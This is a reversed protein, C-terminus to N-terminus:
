NEQQVDPEITSVQADDWTFNTFTLQRSVNYYRWTEQSLITTKDLKAYESLTMLETVKTVEGEEDEVKYTVYRYRTIDTDQKYQLLADSSLPIEVYYIQTAAEKDAEPDDSKAIYVVIHIDLDPDMTIICWVSDETGDLAMKLTETKSKVSENYQSLMWDTDDPVTDRIWGRTVYDSKSTTDDEGAIRWNESIFQMAMNNFMTKLDDATTLNATLSDDLTPWAEVDSSNGSVFNGSSDRDAYYYTWSSDIYCRHDAYFTIGNVPLDGTAAELLKVFSTLVYRDHSGDDGNESESLRGMASSAAAIIISGVVACIVFLLLAAVLSAGKDSRLKKGIIKRM